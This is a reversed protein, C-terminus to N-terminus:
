AANRGGVTKTVNIFASLFISRVDEGRVNDHQAAHRMVAAYCDVLANTQAILHQAWEPQQTAAQAQQVQKRAQVMQISAALQQELDSPPEEPPEAADSAISVIWQTKRGPGVGVEAKTIEVRDGAKVGLKRFQDTLIVGVKDSVYFAGEAASFMHQQGGFQSEVIRGEVSNLHLEQPINIQFRIIPM